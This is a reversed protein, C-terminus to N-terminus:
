IGENVLMPPQVLSNKGYIVELQLKAKAADKAQVQVSKTITKTVTIKVTAEYTNM